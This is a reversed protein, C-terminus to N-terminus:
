PRANSVPRVQQEPNDQRVTGARLYGGPEYDGLFGQIGREARRPAPPSVPSQDAEPKALGTSAARLPGQMSPRADRGTLGAQRRGRDSRLM